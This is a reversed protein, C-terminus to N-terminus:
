LKTSKDEWNHVNRWEIGLTVGLISFAIGDTLKAGIMILDVQKWSFEFKLCVKFRSMLTISCWEKSYSM